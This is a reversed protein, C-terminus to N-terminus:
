SCVEPLKGLLFSNIRVVLDAGLTVGKRTTVTRSELAVTGELSAADLGEISDGLIVKVGRAELQTTVHDRLKNHYTGNLAKDANQVLTVSTKPHFDRLEGALESAKM